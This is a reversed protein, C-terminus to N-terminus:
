PNTLRFFLKGGPAMLTVSNTGNATTISYGSATWSGAALNSSQWLTYRGTDPWSLIVRNGSHTIALNPLGPTQVVSILAWFGGTLAYNGGIMAGGADPQGITGSVSYQGNTSTGGGGAVNHWDISYSQAFLPSLQHNLTSLLLALAGLRLKTKM